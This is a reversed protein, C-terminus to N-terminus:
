LALLKREQNIRFIQGYQDARIQKKLQENERVLKLNDQELCSVITKSYTLWGKLKTVHAVITGLQRETMCVIDPM